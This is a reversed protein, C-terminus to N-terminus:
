GPRWRGGTRHLFWRKLLEMGAQRADLLPRRAPAGAGEPELRVKRTGNEEEIEASQKMRLLIHDEGLSTVEAMATMGDGAAEM